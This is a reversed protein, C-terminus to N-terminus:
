GTNETFYKFFLSTISLSPAIADETVCGETKECFLVSDRKGLAQRKLTCQLEPEVKELNASCLDEVEAGMDTEHAPRVWM